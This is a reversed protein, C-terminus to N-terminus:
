TTDDTPEGRLIKRCAAIQEAIDQLLDRIRRLKDEATQQGSM